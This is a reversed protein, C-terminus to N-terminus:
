PNAEAAQKLFEARVKLLGTMYRELFLKDALVGLIGLPSSYRFTDVM